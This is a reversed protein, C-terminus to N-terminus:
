STLTCLLSLLSLPCKYTQRRGETHCNSIDVKKGLLLLFQCLLCFQNRYLEVCM